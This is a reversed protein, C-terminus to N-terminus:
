GQHSGFAALHNSLSRHILTKQASEVNEAKGGWATLVSAQLARGYSFSLKWPREAAPLKNLNATAQIETQGGSLFVVGPMPQHSLAAPDATIGVLESPLNCRTRVQLLPGLQGTGGQGPRSLRLAIEYLTDPELRWIKYTGNYNDLIISHRDEWDITTAQIETQGGSLFVVGPM